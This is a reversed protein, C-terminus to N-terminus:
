PIQPQLQYICTQYPAIELTSLLHFLGGNPNIEIAPLTMEGLIPVPTYHGEPLISQSKTIWIESVPKDGLNILVLLAEDESVRLISYIGDNTTTLVELDGVRLAAHENRIRILTQYHSLISGSDELEEAVNYTEWAPGLPQWPSANSFGGNMADSWQMPRRVWDHSQDGQMGIEEGYYIFPVGPATLLLSAAVKVKKDEDILQSMVRDQDHNTLFSGFRMEPIETYSRLVQDNIRSANGENISKIMAGALWFEFSIDFEEGKIYSANILTDEWVEGVTM